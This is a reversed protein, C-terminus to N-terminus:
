AKFTMTYTYTENTDNHLFRILEYSFPALFYMVVFQRNQPRQESCTLVTCM